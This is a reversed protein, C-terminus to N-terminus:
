KHAYRELVMFILIYIYIHIYACVLYFMIYDDCLIIM